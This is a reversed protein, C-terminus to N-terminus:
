RKMKNPLNAEMEELSEWRGNLVFIGNEKLPEVM